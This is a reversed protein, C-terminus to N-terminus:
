QGGDGMIVWQGHGPGSIGENGYPAKIPIVKLGWM